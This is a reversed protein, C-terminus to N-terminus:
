HTLVESCPPMAGLSRALAPPIGSLDASYAICGARGEAAARPQSGNNDFVRWLTSLAAYRPFNALSRAFRRRADAEPIAHGGESVRRAIRALATEPSAVAFYLLNVHWGREVADELLRLYTVGALTTELSFDAREGNGGLLSRTRSLAIRAAEIREADPQLPSLGRAIEDLNVFRVSGAVARIHRFAYTTKGVGNPGAILWITNQDRM